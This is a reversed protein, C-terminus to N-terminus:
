SLDEDKLLWGDREIRGFRVGFVSLPLMLVPLFALLKRRSVPVSKQPTDSRKM